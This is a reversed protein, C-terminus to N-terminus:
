RSSDSQKYKNLEHQAWEVVAKSLTTTLWTDNLGYEKQSSAIIKAVREIGLEKLIMPVIIKFDGAILNAM